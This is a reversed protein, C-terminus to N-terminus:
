VLEIATGCKPCRRGGQLDKRVELERLLVKGCKPCRLKYVALVLSAGVLAPAVIMPWLSDRAAFLILIGIICCVYLQTRWIKQIPM